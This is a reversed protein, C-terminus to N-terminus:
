TVLGGCSRCIPAHRQDSSRDSIELGRDREREIVVEGGRAVKFLDDPTLTVGFMGADFSYFADTKVPQYVNVRFNAGHRAALVGIEPLKDYNTRM